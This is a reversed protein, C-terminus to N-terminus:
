EDEKKHWRCYPKAQCDDCGFSPDFCSWGLYRVMSIRTECDDWDIEARGKYLKDAEPMRNVRIDIYRADSCCDCAQAITKAHAANEAFVITSYDSDKECAYYAKIM